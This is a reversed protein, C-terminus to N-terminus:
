LIERIEKLLAKTKSVSLALPALLQPDDLLQRCTVIHREMLDQKQSNNLNKVVTIPYLKERDIWDKLGNGPPYDWSLLKLGSCTGYDIADSTFRTNTVVWGHFTFGAYEPAEKRKIILDDVRARIYLPVKVNQIRGANQGYKCEVFHLQKDQTAVVDVEHTVCHGQLTQGVEVSFGMRQMIHGVFHEFPYGTPGLEMMAKKLKYRSAVQSKKKRLLTFARAYIQQTSVGDYIWAQIDSTVQQIIGEEAGANRLSRILKEVAFPEQEGSAKRILINKPAETEM